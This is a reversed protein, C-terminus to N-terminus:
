DHLPLSPLHRSSVPPLSDYRRRLGIIFSTVPVQRQRLPTERIEVNQNTILFIIAILHM